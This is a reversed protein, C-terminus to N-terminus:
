LHTYLHLTTSTTRTSSHALLFIADFYFIICISKQSRYFIVRHAYMTAQTFFDTRHISCMAARQILAFQVRRPCICFSPLLRRTTAYCRYKRFICYRMAIFDTTCNHIIICQTHPVLNKFPSFIQFGQSPRLVQLTIDKRCKTFYQISQFLKWLFFKHYKSRWALYTTKSINQFNIPPKISDNQNINKTM